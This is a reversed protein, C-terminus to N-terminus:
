DQNEYSEGMNLYNKIEDIAEDAGYCVVARYGSANLHDLWEQQNPTPKNKGYKLEIRLGHHRGRPVDLAIDPVGPKVGAAKLRAATAADRKGGNPVHYLWKLDPMMCQQLAAWQFVAIQEHEEWQQKM